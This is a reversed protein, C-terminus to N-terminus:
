WQGLRLSSSSSYRLVKSWLVLEKVFDKPIHGLIWNNHCYKVGLIQIKSFIQLVCVCWLSYHSSEQHPHHHMRLSERNETNKEAQNLHPPLYDQSCAVLCQQMMLKHCCNQSFVL